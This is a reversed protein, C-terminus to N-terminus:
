RKKVNQTFSKSTSPAFYSTGLYEVRVKRTAVTLFQIAHRATGNADLQYPGYQANDVIFRVSGDPTYGAVSSVTATFTVVQLVFSPDLSSTISTTTPAQSQLKTIFADRTGHLISQAPKLIPFNSSLTFGTLYVDGAQDIALGRASDDENGGLYTSYILSNGGPNLKTVFADRNPAGSNTSQLPRELPFDDSGTEGAVIINGGSDVAVGYCIDGGSGGLYTSYLLTDGAANLRAVFGDFFFVPLTGGAFSDQYANVTPFDSSGTGGVFYVSGSPGTTIGLGMENGTGGLYSSFLLSDGPANVKAVFVDDGGGYTGQFPSVMPFNPSSTKGTIYANGVSDVSIAFAEDAARGGLFTSYVIASGSANLKTVFADVGVHTDQIPNVLPFNNSNSRGTIYANGLSDVAIANASESASGGLYTSYVLTGGTADLKTVFADQPGLRTSQIANVTPFDSSFTAGSVYANGLNDVAIAGPGSDFASGGLYTSYILGGNKDFKSVFVDALGGGYLAQYPALVPFDLSPTQGLVYSNGAADLAIDLGLDIDNGGLYTSFALVPDIVLTENKDYDDVDFGVTNDGRLIYRGEIRVTEGDVLQYLNPRHQRIETGDSHLVLEGQHNIELHEVGKFSLAIDKPNAQPAVVFDYELQEGTGYFVLDTGPYIGEYLVKAYTPVDIRWKSPDAGAVYNVHGPQHDLGSIKPQPNAGKLGVEIVSHQTVPDHVFPLRRATSTRSRNLDLVVKTPTFTFNYGNGRCLFTMQDLGRQFNLRSSKVANSGAPQTRLTVGNAPPKFASPITHNLSFSCFTLSTFAFLLFLISKVPIRRAYPNQFM